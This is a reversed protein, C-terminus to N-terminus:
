GVGCRGSVARGASTAASRAAHQPEPTSLIEDAVKADLGDVM